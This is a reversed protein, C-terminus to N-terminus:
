VEASLVGEEEQEDRIDMRKAISRTKKLERIIDNILEVRDEADARKLYALGMECKVISENLDQPDLIGDMIYVFEGAQHRVMQMIKIAEITQQTVKIPASITEVAMANVKTLATMFANKDKRDDTEPITEITEKTM